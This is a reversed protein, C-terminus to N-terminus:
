MHGRPDDLMRVEVGLHGAMAAPTEAHLPDPIDCPESVTRLTVGDPLHVLFAEGNDAVLSGPPFEEVRTSITLGRHPVLVRLVRQHEARYGKECAIVRGSFEVELIVTSDSMCEAQLTSLYDAKVGYFGCRCLLNPAVHPFVAECTASADVAFTGEYVISGLKYSGAVPVIHARRYARIPDAQARTPLDLPLDTLDILGLIVSKPLDLGTALYNM